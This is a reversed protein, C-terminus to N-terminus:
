SIWTGMVITWLFFGTALAASVGALASVARAARLLHGLAHRHVDGDIARQTVAWAGFAFLSLGASALLQWWDPRLGFAVIVAVSGVALDVALRTDTAACAREALFESLGEDGAGNTEAIVMM